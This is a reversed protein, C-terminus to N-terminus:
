NLSSLSSMNEQLQKIKEEVGERGVSQRNQVKM